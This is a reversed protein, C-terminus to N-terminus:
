HYQVKLPIGIDPLRRWGKATFIVGKQYNKDRAFQRVFPPIINMIENIENKTGTVKFYFKNIWTVAKFPKLQRQLRSSHKYPVRFYFNFTVFPIELSDLEEDSIGYRIHLPVAFDYKEFLGNFYRQQKTSTQMPDFFEGIQELGLEELNEYYTLTDDILQPDLDHKECLERLHKLEFYRM